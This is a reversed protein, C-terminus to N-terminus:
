TRKFEDFQHREGIIALRQRVMEAIRTESYDRQITERAAGGRVRAEDPHDVVFRMLEAAQEVSPEAWVEGAHPASTRQTVLRYGVPFANSVDM